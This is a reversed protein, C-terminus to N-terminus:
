FQDEFPENDGKNPFRVYEKVYNVKGYQGNDRIGLVCHAKNGPWVDDPDAATATLDLGFAEMFKRLELRNRNLAKKDQREHPITLFRTIDQYDLEDADAPYLTVNLYQDGNKTDGHKVARIELEMVEGDDILKSEVTQDMGMSSFDLINSEM